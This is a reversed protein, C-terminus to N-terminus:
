PHTSQAHISLVAHLSSLTHQSVKYPIQKEELLLWVKECYPCWGATDRYLTVEPQFGEPAGFLRINAKHNAEGRGTLIDECRTREDPTEQSRLLQDLEEWRNGADIQQEMAQQFEASSWPSSSTSSPTNSKGFPWSIGNVVIHSPKRHYQPIVFAVVSYCSLIQLLLFKNM